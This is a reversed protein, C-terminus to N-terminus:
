RKQIKSFFSFSLSLYPSLCCTSSSVALIFALCMCVIERSKEEWSIFSYFSLASVISRFSLYLCIFNGLGRLGDDRDLLFMCLRAFMSPRLRLYDQLILQSLTVFSTKRVLLSPHSLTREALQEANADLLIPFRDYLSPICCVSIFISPLNLLIVARKEFFFFFVFFFSSVPSFVTPM